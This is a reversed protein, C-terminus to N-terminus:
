TSLELNWNLDRFPSLPWTLHAPFHSPSHGTALLYWQSTLTPWIKCLTWKNLLFHVFLKSVRLITIKDSLMIRAVVGRIVYTYSYVHECVIQLIIKFYMFIEMGEFLFRNLNPPINIAAFGDYQLFLHRHSLTLGWRRVYSLFKDISNDNTQNDITYVQTWRDNIFTRRHTADAATARQEYPSKARLEWPLLWGSIDNNCCGGYSSLLSRLSSLWLIFM